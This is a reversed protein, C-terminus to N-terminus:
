IDVIAHRARTACDSDAHIHNARTRHRRRQKGLGESRRDIREECLLHRAIWQLAHDTGIFNRAGSEENRNALV